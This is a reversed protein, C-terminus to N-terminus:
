MPSPPHWDHDAGAGATADVRSIKFNYNVLFPMLQFFLLLAMLHRMAHIPAHDHVYVLEARLSVLYSHRPITWSPTLRPLDTKIKLGRTEGSKRV